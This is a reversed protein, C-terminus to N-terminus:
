LVHLFCKEGWRVEEYSMGPLEEACIKFKYLHIIYSHFFLTHYYACRSLFVNVLYYNCFVLCRKPGKADLHPKQAATELAIANVTRIRKAVWIAIYHSRWPQKPGHSPPCYIAITLIQWDCTSVTFRILTAADLSRYHNSLLNKLKPMSSKGWFDKEFTSWSQTKKSQHHLIKPFIQCFVQLQCKFCKKWSSLPINCGSTASYQPLVSEVEFRGCSCGGCVRPVKWRGKETNQLSHICIIPNYQGCPHTPPAACRMTIAAHNNCPSQKPSSAPAPSWSFLNCAANVPAVKCPVFLTQHEPKRGFVWAVIVCGNCVCHLQLTCSWAFCRSAARVSCHITVQYLIVCGKRATYKRSTFDWAARWQSIQQTIYLIM